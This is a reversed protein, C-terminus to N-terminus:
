RSEHIIIDHISFNTLKLFISIHLIQMPFINCTKYNKNLFKNYSCYFQLKKKYTLFCYKHFSHRQQSELLSLCFETVEFTLFLPIKGSLNYRM